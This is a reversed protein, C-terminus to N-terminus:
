RAPPKTSSCPRVLATRATTIPQVVVKMVAHWLDSNRQLNVWIDPGNSCLAGLRVAMETSIAAPDKARTIKHLQQRSIGMAGAAASIGIGLAPLVTNRLLRGPHVPPRTRKGTVPYDAM